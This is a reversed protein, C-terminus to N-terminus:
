NKFFRVKHSWRADVILARLVGRDVLCPIPLALAGILAQAPTLGNGLCVEFREVISV